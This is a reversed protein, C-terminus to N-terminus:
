GAGSPAPAGSIGGKAIVPGTPQGTPSGGAPEVSVALAATPGLQALLGASLPLVTTTDPTFVGVPIPAQGAPILWLETSRGSPIAATAAPVMVIQKRDLDMTATWDTVGNDQRISSVMLAVHTGRVPARLLMVVCIAAILSAGMSLWQWPRANNWFSTAQASGRPTDWRLSQRIRRWVEESPAIEPLVETLPTLRREWLAVALAAEDSTATERAVSARADAELIGLVYEAYRLNNPDNDYSTNM